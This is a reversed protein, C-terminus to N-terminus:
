SPKVRYLAAGGRHAVLDLRDPLVLALNPVAEANLLLVYDFKAPWGALYAPDTADGRAYAELATYDRPSSVGGDTSASYPPLALMPQQGPLTFADAWFAHRDLLALAGYHWYALPFGPGLVRSRPTGGDPQHLTPNAEVTLLRRGPDVAALVTRVDRVDLAAGRWVSAIYAMRGAFLMGLVLTALIAERRRLRPMTVAFLVLALLLPIRTDIWYAGKAGVPLVASLLLLLPVAFWGVPAVSLRRRAAWALLALLLVGGVLLALSRSYTLVPTLLYLLKRSIDQWVVPGGAGSFSTAFYLGAPLVLAAGLAVARRLFARGGRAVEALEFCGVIVAFYIFGYLHCIFAVLAFAAGAVIQSVPRDALAVWCAAGWLGLGIAIQFNVFGLLFMANYAVFGVGLPWASRERFLALSLAIVGTAPLLLALGVAVKGATYPSLVRMLPPLILDTALNPTLAWDPAFMRALVPDDAGFALIYARALHNPYDALPPLEVLLVPALLAGLM